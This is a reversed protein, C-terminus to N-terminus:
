NNPEWFPSHLLAGDANNVDIYEMQPIHLGEMFGLVLIANPAYIYGAPDAGFDADEKGELQDIVLSLEEQTFPNNGSLINKISIAFGNGVGIVKTASQRLKDKFVQDVKQSLATAHAKAQHIHDIALPNPSKFTQINRRQLKEIIFNRFAVAGENSQFMALAGESTQWIFQISEGGLAWVVIEEIPHDLKAIAAKFSLEGDLTSDIIHVKVGTESQIQEAFDQGNLARRFFTSGLITIEAGYSQAIAVAEKIKSLGEAMIEQSLKKDPSRALHEQFPVFYNEAQLVEIIKHTALDVRAVRIKPGGSGLDIAARIVQDARLASVLFIFFLFLKLSSSKVLFQTM